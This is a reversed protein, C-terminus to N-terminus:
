SLIKLIQPDKRPAPDLIQKPYGLIIPAVVKYEDSIGIEDLIKPDRIHNGMGIWCTGLGREVASFMLYSAILTCDIELTHNDKPGLILVLCPANYFISFGENQMMKKYRSMYTGPNDEIERLINKKCEDSIQRLMDRNNIIIFRWEQRNGSSPALCSEKIIEKVTETSVDKGEYDRISRRNKLLGTYDMKVERDRNVQM